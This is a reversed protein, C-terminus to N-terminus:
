MWFEETSSVSANSLASVNQAVVNEAFSAAGYTTNVLAGPAVTTLVASVNALVSGTVNKAIRGETPVCNPTNWWNDCVSWPQVSKVSNVLYILSWSLVMSYYWAFLFSVVAM